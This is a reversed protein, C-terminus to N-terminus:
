SPAASPRSLRAGGRDQLRGRGRPGRRVTLSTALRAPTALIRVGTVDPPLSGPASLAAALAAEDAAPPVDRRLWLLRQLHRAIVPHGGLWAAAAEPPVRV